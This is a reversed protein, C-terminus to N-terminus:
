LDILIQRFCNAAVCAKTGLLEYSLCGVNSFRMRTHHENKTPLTFNQQVGKERSM